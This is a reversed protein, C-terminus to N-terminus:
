RFTCVFYPWNSLNEYTVLALRMLSHLGCPLADIDERRARMVPVQALRM